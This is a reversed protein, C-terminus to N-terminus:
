MNSQPPASTTSGAGFFSLMPPASPIPISQVQLATGSFGIQFLDGGDDFGYVSGAWFALGFVNSYGTPGWNRLFAGTSPDVELLCDTACGTGKVTLYTPNSGSAKVSVIDGSSSFGMGITTGINSLAGTTTDIRVYQDGQYGVLAEETPDVTGAPVFSLSNPYNSGSAILTCIATTRDIRYVGDYTTGYMNSDKDLAIDIVGGCGQFQGVVTVANTVPDLKYLTSSSEGFVEAVQGPVSADFDGGDGGFSLADTSNQQTADRTSAESSPGSGDPADFGSGPSSSGCAVSALSLLAVSLGVV